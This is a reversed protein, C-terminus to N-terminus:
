GVLPAAEEAAEISEALVIAVPQGEWEIWDDQM